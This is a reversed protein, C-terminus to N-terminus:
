SEVWALMDSDWHHRMSPRPPAEDPILFSSSGWSYWRRGDKSRWEYSSKSQYDKRRYRVSTYAYHKINAETLKHGETVCYAVSDMLAKRLGAETIGMTMQMTEAWPSALLSDFDYEKPSIEKIDNEKELQDERNIPTRTGNQRLGQAMKSTTKPVVSGDKEPVIALYINVGRQDKDVTVLGYSVLTDVSRCWTRRGIGLADSAQQGTYSYGGHHSAIYAWVVKEVSSLLPTRIISNPVKTYRSM